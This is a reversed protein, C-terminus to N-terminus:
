IGPLADMDSARTNMNVVCARLAYRGGVIANSVFAEGSEQIRALLARNLEDLYASAAGDGTVPGLDEPVFRFTTISLQQTMAELAPERQVNAYLRESLRIDDGIMRLAGDRGAHRLGLWVKLARFGRTNQPGYDVYNLAEVSFHYYPPHYAFASRLREADRVLTCGAEIPAYLWKHPDVAVSDALRLARLEPPAEPSLVAFGGYAADVHFWIGRERCLAALEALPDVAGTSVTGATGVVLFPLDGAAVDDDLQRTLADLRMRQHSDTPIWRIAATGIGSLDAAKQIWTHTEASCYVRLRRSGAAVGEARV